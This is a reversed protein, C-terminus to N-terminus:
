ALFRGAWRPDPARCTDSRGFWRYRRRAVFRYAPDRLFRPVLRALLVLRWGGGLAAIALLSADSYVYTQRGDVLVVSAPDLPDIGAHRMIEAGAESQCTTYTLRGAADRELLFRVFGNCLNCVGDFVLLM